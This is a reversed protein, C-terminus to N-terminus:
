VFNIIDEQYVYREHPFVNTMLNNKHTASFFELYNRKKSTGVLDAGNLYKYYSYTALYWITTQFNQQSHNRHSEKVAYHWPGKDVM